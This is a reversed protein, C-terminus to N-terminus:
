RVIVLKGTKTKNDDVRFRYLYVGPAVAEGGDTRGDWDYEYVFKQTGSAAANARISFEPVERVLSGSLDHITLQLSQAPKAAQLVITTLTGAPASQKQPYAPGGPNPFNILKAIEQSSAAFAKKATLSANYFGAILIGTQQNGFSNSLPAAFLNKGTSGPFSDSVLGTTMIGPGNGGAEVLDLGFNPVGANVSNATLREESTMINDDAHWILFGQELTGYPLADDFLKGTISNRGRRELLFYEKTGDVGAVGSIPIRVYANAALEAYALTIDQASDSVTLTQPNSFFGLFQKSWPDLHAPNSGQPSGIYVGADMLSWKGVVSQSASKYLDPLGLQHGYEHCIVGLPSINQSESEPVFVAGNFSKGDYSFLDSVGNRIGDTQASSVPVTPAFVSWINDTQCASDNATEAGIGAHYIMIHSSASLNYDADAATMADKALQDYNSCVGQAYSALSLPMRYAGQAGATGGTGRQTVTASVSLVGYSNEMYFRKMDEMFSEAETKTKSMVQDSFDVRVLLVYATTLSLPAPFFPAAKLAAGRANQALPNPRCVDRTPVISGPPPPVAVALAPALAWLLIFFKSLRIPSPNSSQASKM